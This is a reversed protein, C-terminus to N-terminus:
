YDGGLPFLLQHCFKATYSKINQIMPIYYKDFISIIFHM